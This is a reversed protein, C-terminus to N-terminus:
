KDFKGVENGWSTWGEHTTRSFLEIRKAALKKDFFQDILAYIEDPKRSHERRPAFLLQPVKCAGDKQDGKLKMLNGRLAVLLFETAPRTYWSLGNNVIDGSGNKQQKIWVHHVTKFKFDWAEILSMAKDLKPSTTWLLLACNEKAIQDIPMKKLETDTMTVYHKETSGMTTCHTYKWPPDVLIVDFKEGNLGFYDSTM